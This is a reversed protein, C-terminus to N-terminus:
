AASVASVTIALEEEEPAAGALEPGDDEAAAAALGTGAAIRSQIPSDQKPDSAAPCADVPALDAVMPCNAEVFLNVDRGSRRDTLRPREFSESSWSFEYDGDKLLQGLSVIDPSGPAVYSSLAGLQPCRQTTIM